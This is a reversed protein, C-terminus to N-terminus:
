RPIRKQTTPSELYLSFLRARGPELSWTTKLRCVGSTFKAEGDVHALFTQWTDTQRPTFSQWMGMTAHLMECQGLWDPNTELKQFEGTAEEYIAQCDGRNFEDRFREVAALALHRNAADVPLGPHETFRSCSGCLLWCLAV